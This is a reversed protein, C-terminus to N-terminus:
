SPERRWRLALVIAAVAIMAALFYFSYTGIMDWLLVEILVIAVAAAGIGKLPIPLRRGKKETPGEGKCFHTGFTTREGCIPCVYEIPKFGSAKGM